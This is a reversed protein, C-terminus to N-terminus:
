QREILDGTYVDANEVKRIVQRYMVVNVLENM